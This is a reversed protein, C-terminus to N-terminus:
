TASTAEPLVGTSVQSSRFAWGRTFGRPPCRGVQMNAAFGDVALLNITLVRDIVQRASEYNRMALMMQKVNSQCYALCHGYGGRVQVTSALMWWFVLMVASVWFLGKGMGLTAKWDGVTSWWAFLLSVSIFITVPHLALGVAILSVAYFLHRLNFRSPLSDATETDISSRM